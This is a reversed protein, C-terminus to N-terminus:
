ANLEVAVAVTNMTMSEIEIEGVVALMVVVVPLAFKVTLPVEFPFVIGRELAATRVTSDPPTTVVSM